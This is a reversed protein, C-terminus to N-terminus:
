EVCGAKEAFQVEVAVNSWTTTPSSRKGKKSKKAYKKGIRREGPEKEQHSERKENSSKDRCATQYLATLGDAGM